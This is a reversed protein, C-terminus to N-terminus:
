STLVFDKLYDRVIEPLPKPTPVGLKIARTGDTGTPWSDVISQVLPDFDDVVLGPTIGYEAAVSRMV